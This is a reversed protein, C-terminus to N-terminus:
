IKKTKSCRSTMERLPTIYNVSRIAMTLMLPFFAPNYKQPLLPWGLIAIALLALNLAHYYKLKSRLAKFPVLIAFALQLPNLWLLNYNPNTCPHESVFALFSLISGIAGAIAFLIIDFWLDNKRKYTYFATHAIVLLFFIWCAATPSIESPLDHEQEESIPTYITKTESVLDEGGEKKSSEYVRMLGGPLFTMNSDAVVEDTQSGLCLDIGFAFWKMSALKEHIIERYTQKNGLAPYTIGGTVKEILKKPRTACNDFFFNYRYYRNEPSANVYLATIIEEKEAETLNLTQEYMYANKEAIENMSSGFSQIALKYDTEGKVFKYIFGDDFSFIGYNFVVDLGIARDQIRIATHGWATYIESESPTSTLLSVTKTSSSQANATTMALLLLISSLILQRM